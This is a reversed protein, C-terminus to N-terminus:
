KERRRVDQNDQGYELREVKSSLARLNDSMGRVEEVKDMANKIQIELKASMSKMDQATRQITDVDKLKEKITEMSTVMVVKLLEDKYDRIDAIMTKEFEKQGKILESKGFNMGLQFISVISRVFITFGLTAVTFWFAPSVTIQELWSM